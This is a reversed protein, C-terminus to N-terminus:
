FIRLSHSTVIRLRSSSSDWNKVFKSYHLIIEWMHKLAGIKLSYKWYIMNYSYTKLIILVDNQPKIIFYQLLVSYYDLGFLPVITSKLVILLKKLKGVLLLRDLGKTIQTFGKRRNSWTIVEINPSVDRM